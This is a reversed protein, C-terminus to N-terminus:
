QEFVKWSGSETITVKAGLREAYVKLGEPFQGADAVNPLPLGNRSELLPSLNGRWSVPAAGPLTAFSATAVADTGDAFDM